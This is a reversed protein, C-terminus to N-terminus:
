CYNYIISCLMFMVRTAIVLRSLFASPFHVVRVKNIDIVVILLTVINNNRNSSLWHLVPNIFPKYIM